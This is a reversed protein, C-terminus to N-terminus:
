PASLEGDDAYTEGVNVNLGSAVSWRSDYETTAEYSAGDATALVDLVHAGAGRTRLAGRRSEYTMDIILHAAGEAYAAERVTLTVTWFDEAPDATPDDQGELTVSQGAETLEPSLEPFGTPGPIPTALPRGTADFQVQVRAESPPLQSVQEGVQETKTRTVVGAYTGDLANADAGGDGSGPSSGDDGGAGGAAGGAGGGAAGDDDGGTGSDGASAGDDGADGDAGGNQGSDGDGDTSGGDGDTDPADDADPRDAQSPDDDTSAGGSDAGGPSDQASGSSDNQNPGASDGQGGETANAGSATTEDRASTEDGGTVDASMPCGGMPALLLILAPLIYALRLNKM